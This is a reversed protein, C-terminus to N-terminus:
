IINVEQLFYMKSSLEKIGEERSTNPMLVKEEEVM